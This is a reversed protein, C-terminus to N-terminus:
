KDDSFMELGKYREQITKLKLNLEKIRDDISNLSDDRDYQEIATLISNIVTTDLKKAFKQIIEKQKDTCRISYNIKKM